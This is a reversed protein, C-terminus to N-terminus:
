QVVFKTSGFGSGNGIKVFYMGPVLHVNDINHMVHRAELWVNEIYLERGTLDYIGLKYTGAAAPRLSLAVHSTTSNGVVTVPLITRDPDSVSLQDGSIYVNDLFWQSGATSPSTYRFSIFFPAAGPYVFHSLSTVRTTWGSFGPTNLSPRVNNTSDVYVFNSPITSTDITYLVSLKGGAIIAISDVKTDFYLYARPYYGTLDLRPTILYSTDLHYSGGWVGTCTLGNTTVATGNGRGGDPACRWTGEPYTGPLIPDYRQWGTPFGTSIGCSADFDNSLSTVQGQTALSLLIFLCVFVSQISCRIM